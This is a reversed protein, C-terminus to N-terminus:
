RYTMAEVLVPRGQELCRKRAERISTIVALIDNGDVRVTDMGYGPGRSAIGDGNYQETSPTSIAFGNNRAIYLVPSPVTSALMLGAHFDTMRHTKLFICFSDM